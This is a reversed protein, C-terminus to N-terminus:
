SIYAKLVHSRSKSSEIHHRWQLGSIHNGTLTKSVTVYPRYLFQVGWLLKMNTDLLLWIDREGNLQKFNKEKKDSLWFTKKRKKCYLDSNM